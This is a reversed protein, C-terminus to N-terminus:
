LSMLSLLIISALKLISFFCTKCVIHPAWFKDQDSFKMGFYVHYLNDVLDDVKKKNFFKMFEGCIYCFIDPNNKCGRNTAM